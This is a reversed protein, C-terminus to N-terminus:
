VVTETHKCFQCTRVIIWVLMRVVKEPEEECTGRGSLYHSSGESSRRHISAFSVRESSLGSSCKSSRRPNRKVRVEDPRTILRAKLRGDRYAQLVSVNPRYDLRANPPGERTGRGV